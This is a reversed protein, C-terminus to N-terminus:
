MRVKDLEYYFRRLRDYFLDRGFPAGNAEFYIYTKGETVAKFLDDCIDFLAATKEVMEM